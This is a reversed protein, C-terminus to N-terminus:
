RHEKKMKSLHQAYPDPPTYGTVETCVCTAHPSCEGRLEALASLYPDPIPLPYPAFTVGADRLEHTMWRAEHELTAPTVEASRGLGHLGDVIQSALYDRSDSSLMVPTTCSVGLKRLGEIVKRRLLSREHSPLVRM